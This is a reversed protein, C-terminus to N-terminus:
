YYPREFDTGSEPPPLEDIGIVEDALVFRVETEGDIEFVYQEGERRYRDAEFFEDDRGRLIVRFTKM